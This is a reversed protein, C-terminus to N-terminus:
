AGTARTKLLALLLVSMIESVMDSPAVIVEVSPSSACGVFLIGIWDMVVANFISVDSSDAAAPTASSSLLSLGVFVVVTEVPSVRGYEAKVFLCFHDSQARADSAAIKPGIELM